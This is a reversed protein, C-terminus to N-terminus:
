GDLRKIENNMVALTHVGDWLAEANVKVVEAMKQPTAELENLALITRLASLSRKIDGTYSMLMNWDFLSLTISGGPYEEASQPLVKSKISTNSPIATTSQLPKRAEQTSMALTETKEKNITTLSHM